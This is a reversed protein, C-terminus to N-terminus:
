NWVSVKKEIIAILSYFLVGIIAAVVIAAFATDTASVAASNSIRYGLGGQGVSLDASMAAITCLISGLKLGTFIQPLANPVTVRFFTEWRGCGFGRMVDLKNQPVYTFGTLTNVAVVPAVQLIVIIIKLSPDVGLFLKFEPVLTAMPTVMLLILIPLVMRVIFKFQSAIAAIVFGIPVAIVYGILMVRISVLADPWISLAFKDHLAAAIATPKPILHESVHFATCIWQWLLIVVILVIWPAIRRSIKSKEM